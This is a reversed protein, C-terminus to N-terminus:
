RSDNIFDRLLKKIENLDDRVLALDSELNEVRKNENEKIKKMKIYNHYESLNTNLIANTEVDRVLNSHGEVKQYNM